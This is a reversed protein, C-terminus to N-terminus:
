QNIPTGTQTPETIPAKKIGFFKKVDACKKKAVAFLYIIELVGLTNFVLLVIFWAKHHNKAAVWLASGKWLLTWLIVILVLWIHGSFFSNYSYM